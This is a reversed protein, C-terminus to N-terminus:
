KPSKRKLSVRREKSLAEKPKPPGVTISPAKQAVIKAIKAKEKEKEQNKLGDERPVSPSERVSSHSRESGSEAEPGPSGKM